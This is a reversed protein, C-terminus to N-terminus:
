PSMAVPVGLLAEDQKTAGIFWWNARGCYVGGTESIVCYQGGGASIDVVRLSPTIM